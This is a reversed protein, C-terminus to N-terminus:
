LGTLSMPQSRIKKAHIWAAVGVVSFPDHIVMRDGRLKNVAETVEEPIIKSSDVFERSILKRTGVIWTSVDKREPFIGSAEIFARIYPQLAPAPSFLQFADEIRRRTTEEPDLAGESSLVEESSLAQTERGPHEESSASPAKKTRAGLETNESTSESTGILSCGTAKNGFTANGQESVDCQLNEWQLNLAEMLVRFYMQHDLRAYREEMLGARILKKRATKQEEYSLGTEKEIDESTKYIWGNGSSEKDTWYIFQCLFITATTSGTLKRLGPYYAIPRGIDFLFESLKM